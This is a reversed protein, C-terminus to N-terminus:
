KRLLRCKIMLLPIPITRHTAEGSPALSSDAHKPAAETPAVSTAADDVDIAAPVTPPLNVGDGSASADPDHVDEPPFPEGTAKHLEIQAERQLMASDSAVNMNEETHLANVLIDDIETPSLDSPITPDDGGNDPLTKHASIASIPATGIPDYSAPECAGRGPRATIYCTLIESRLNIPAGYNVNYVTQKFWDQLKEYDLSLCVSYQPTQDTIKSRFFNLAYEPSNLRFHTRLDILYRSYETHIVIVTIDDWRDAIDQEQSFLPALLYATRVHRSYFLYSCLPKERRNLFLSAHLLM